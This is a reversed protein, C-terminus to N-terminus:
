QLTFPCKMQDWDVVATQGTKRLTWKVKNEDLDLEIDFIDGNMFQRCGFVKRKLVRM